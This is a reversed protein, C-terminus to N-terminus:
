TMVSVAKCELHCQHGYHVDEVQIDEKGRLLCIWNNEM